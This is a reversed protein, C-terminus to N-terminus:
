SKYRQGTDLYPMRLFCIPCDEFQPPPQKFLKEDREKNEKNHYYDSLVFVLLVILAAIVPVVTDHPILESLYSISIGTM